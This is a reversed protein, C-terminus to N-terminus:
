AACGLAARQETPSPQVCLFVTLPMATHPTDFFTNKLVSPSTQCKVVSLIFTQAGFIYPSAATYSFCLPPMHNAKLCCPLFVRTPTCTHQPLADRLQHHSYTTSSARGATQPVTRQPTSAATPRRAIQPRIPVDPTRPIRHHGGAETDEPSGDFLATVLHDDGAFPELVQLNADLRAVARVPDHVTGGIGRIGKVAM